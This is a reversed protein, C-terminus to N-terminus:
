KGGINAPVGYYSYTSVLKQWKPTADEIHNAILDQATENEILFENSQIQICQSRYFPFFDFKNLYIGLEAIYRRHQPLGKVYWEGKQYPVAMEYVSHANNGTFCIDTVDYIRLITVLEEAKLQFYVALINFPLESVPWSVRIKQPSVLLLRMGENFPAIHVSPHVEKEHDEGSSNKRHIIIENLM